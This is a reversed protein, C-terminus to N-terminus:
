VKGGQRYCDPHYYRAVLGVGDGCGKQRALAKVAREGIGIKRKPCARRACEHEESVSEIIIATMGPRGEGQAM